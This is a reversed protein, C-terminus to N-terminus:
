LPKRHKFVSKRLKIPEVGKWISFHRIAGSFFVRIFILGISILLYSSNDTKEMKKSKSHRIVYISLSASSSCSCCDPPDTHCTQGEAVVAVRPNCGSLLTAKDGRECSPGRGLFDDDYLRIPSKLFHTQVFMKGRSRSGQFIKTHTDTRSKVEKM